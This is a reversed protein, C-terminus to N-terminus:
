MFGKLDSILFFFDNKHRPSSESRELIGERKNFSGSGIKLKLLSNISERLSIITAM